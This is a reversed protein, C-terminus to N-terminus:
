RCVAQHRKCRKPQPRRSDHQKALWAAFISADGSSCSTPMSGNDMALGSVSAGPELSRMTLERKFSRDHRRRTKVELLAQEPM